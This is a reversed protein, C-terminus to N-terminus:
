GLACCSEMKTNRASCFLNCYYDSAINSECKKKEAAYFGLSSLIHPCKWLRRRLSSHFVPLHSAAVLSCLPVACMTKMSFLQSDLFIGRLRLCRSSLSTTLVIWLLSSFSQTLVYSTSECFKKRLAFTQQSKTHSFPCSSFPNEKELLENTQFSSKTKAQFVNKM